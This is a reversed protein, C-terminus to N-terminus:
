SCLCTVSGKGGARWKWLDMGLAGLLDMVSVPRRALSVVWPSWWLVVQWLAMEWRAIGKFFFGPFCLCYSSLFVVGRALVRWLFKYAFMDQNVRSLWNLTIAFDTKPMHNCLFFLEMNHLKVIINLQMNMLCNKLINRMWHRESSWNNSFILNLTNQISFM